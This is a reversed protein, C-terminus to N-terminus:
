SFSGLVAMSAWSSPQRVTTTSPLVPKVLFLTKFSHFNRMSTPKRSKEVVKVDGVQQLVQLLQTHLFQVALETRSVDVVDADFGKLHMLM